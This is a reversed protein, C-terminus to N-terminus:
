KVKHDESWKLGTRVLHPKIQISMEGKYQFISQYLNIGYLSSSGASVHNLSIASVARWRTGTPTQPTVGDRVYVSKAANIGYM